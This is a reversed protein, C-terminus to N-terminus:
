VKVATGDDEMYGVMAREANLIAGDEITLKQGAM